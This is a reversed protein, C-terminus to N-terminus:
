KALEEYLDIYEKFRDNKDFAKARKVCAESSYPKTECIRIIEKELADIDDKEVVSGSTSDICEPSGGTNFTVVPTGCANAEINVMGLTEDRTPNIFLDAASYIEALIQQSDVHDIYIISMNENIFSAPVSGVMVIQFTCQNLCQSLKSFVDIGKRENWVTAVGLLLYKQPSIKYKTRIDSQVPHFIDLDIGNPIVRIDFESYFSDEILSKMWKSPVVITLDMNRVMQKKAKLCKLANNHNFIHTEYHCDICDRRWQECHSIEFYPCYGTFPWCDHFTWIVKIKSAKFYEFIKVVNIYSGHLNHVHVVDPRIKDLYKIFKTTRRRSYFGSMHTYRAIRNHIHCDLWTSVCYTNEACEGESYRYAVINQHGRNISAAQIDAAIKGTSGKAYVTNIQVIKM